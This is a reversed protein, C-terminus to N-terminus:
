LLEVTYGKRLGDFGPPVLNRYGIDDIDLGESGGGDMVVLEQTKKTQPDTVRLKSGCKLGLRPNAATWIGDHGHPFADQCM